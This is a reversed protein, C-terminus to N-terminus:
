TFISGDPFRQNKNASLIKPCNSYLKSWSRGFPSRMKKLAPAGLPDTVFGTCVMPPAASLKAEASAM